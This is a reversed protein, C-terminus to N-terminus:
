GAARTAGYRTEFLETAETAVGRLWSAVSAPVRREIERSGEQGRGLILYSGYAGLAAGRLVDDPADQRRFTEIADFKQEIDDRVLDPFDGTAVVYTGADLDFAIPISPSAAFSLHFYAFVDSSGVLELAADADLQRPELGGYNGLDVSLLRGDPAALPIVEATFCCHAGGTFREYLLDPLDDGDLDGCRHPQLGEFADATRLDVVTRGERKVDLTAGAGEVEDTPNSWSLLFGDCRM